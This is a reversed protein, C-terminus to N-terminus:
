RLSFSDQRANQEAEQRARVVVAHHEGDYVWVEVRQNKIKGKDNNSAVPLWSGFGVVPESSIGQKYLATKVALARMRSLVLERNRSSKEDGFGILQIHAGSGEVGKLYTVLRQVDRLAKNDLQSSGELFRFNISLREGKDVLALYDEPASMDAEAPVSVPKLSIFGIEEVRNQGTDSEAFSLFESVYSNNQTPSAYMYLRRSLPYDETAVYLPRPKLPRSDGDSVALLKAQRVSALGVFGIGGDDAAVRDSLEDNSEFRSARASLKYDSQLVLSKFTDWTGSKDDRAYLNIPRNKGSIKQWNTIEGSFIKGITDVTLTSVPNSKNVIIALGDIAVVREAEFSRMRGLHALSTVEQDKISRSSMAIDGKGALLSSFGTSSGHAAIDVYVTKDYKSTGIVRYENEIDTKLIVVEVIGKAELYDKVWNPALRAGVTNSGHITFLLGSENASFDSLQLPATNVLAPSCLLLFLIFVRVAKCCRM